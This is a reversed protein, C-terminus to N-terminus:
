RRIAPDAGWPSKSLQIAREQDAHSQLAIMIAAAARADALPDHPTGPFPIRLARLASVLDVSRGAHEEYAHAACVFRVAPLRLACRGCMTMVAARDFAARYAVVLRIDGLVDLVRKWVVPWVPADRLEAKTLGHIATYRVPGTFRVLSQFHAVERGSEFRAVGIACVTLPSRSAIEVDLAVFRGPNEPM